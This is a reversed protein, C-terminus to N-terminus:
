ECGRGRGGDRGGHDYNHGGDRGGRGGFEISFSGLPGSERVGHPSASISGLPTDLGFRQAAPAALVGLAIASAALVTSFLM